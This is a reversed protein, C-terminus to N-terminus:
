FLPLATCRDLGVRARLSRIDIGFALFLADARANRRLLLVGSREIRVLHEREAVRRSVCGPVSFAIVDERLAIFQEHAQETFVPQTHTLDGRQIGPTDTHAPLCDGDLAWFRM